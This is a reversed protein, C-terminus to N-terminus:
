TMRTKKTRGLKSKVHVFTGQTAFILKTMEKITPVPITKKAPLSRLAQNKDKIDQLLDPIDMPKYSEKKTLDKLGSSLSALSSKLKGELAKSEKEQKKTPKLSM